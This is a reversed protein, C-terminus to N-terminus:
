QRTASPKVLSRTLTSTTVPPRRPTTPISPRPTSTAPPFGPKGSDLLTTPLVTGDTWGSRPGRPPADLPVQGFALVRRVDIDSRTRHSVTNAGHKPSSLLFSSKRREM